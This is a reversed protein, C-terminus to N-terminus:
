LGASPLHILRSRIASALHVVMFQGQDVVIVTTTANKRYIQEADEPTGRRAAQDILELLQMEPSIGLVSTALTRNMYAKYRHRGTGSRCISRYGTITLSGRWLPCSGQWPKMWLMRKMRQENPPTEHYRGELFSCIKDTDGGLMPFATLSKPTTNLM